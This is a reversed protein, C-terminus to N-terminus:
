SIDANLDIGTAIYDNLPVDGEMVILAGTKTDGLAFAASVLEDITKNSYRIEHKKKKKLIFDKLEKFSLKDFGIAGIKELMKRLEPHFIVIVAFLAIIALSQFILKIASFAFLEAIM